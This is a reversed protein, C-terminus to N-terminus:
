TVSRHVRCFFLVTRKSLTTIALSYMPGAPRYTHNLIM